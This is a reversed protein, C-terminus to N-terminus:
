HEWASYSHKAEKRTMKKVIVGMQVLVYDGIKVDIDSLFALRKQDPYEILAQKGKIEKVVGPIAICM